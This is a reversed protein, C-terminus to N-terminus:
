APASGSKLPEFQNKVRARSESCHAIMAIPRRTSVVLGSAYFHPFAPWCGPSQKRSEFLVGDCNLLSGSSRGGVAWRWGWVYTTRLYSHRRMGWTGWWSSQMGYLDGFHLVSGIRRPCFLLKQVRRWEFKSGAPTHLLPSDFSLGTHLAANGFHIFGLADPWHADTTTLLLILHIM